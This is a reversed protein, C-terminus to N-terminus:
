TKPVGRWRQFQAAGWMLAARWCTEGYRGLGLALPGCLARAPMDTHRAGWDALPVTVVVATLMHFTLFLVAKTRGNARFPDRRSLQLAAGITACMIIILYPGIASAIRGDLVAGLMLITVAVIDLPAGIVTPNM